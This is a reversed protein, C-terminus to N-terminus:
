SAPSPFTSPTSARAPVRGTSSGGTTHSAAPSDSSPPTPFGESWEETLQGIIEMIDELPINKEDPGDIRERLLQYESRGKRGNPLVEHDLLMARLTADVEAPADIPAAAAGFATAMLFLRGEEPRHFTYAESYTIEDTEDDRTEITLRVKVAADREQKRLRRNIRSTFTREATM